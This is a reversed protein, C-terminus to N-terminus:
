KEEKRKKKRKFFIIGAALVAIAIAAAIVIAAINGVGNPDSKLSNSDFRLTYSIMHPESMATTEASIDIDEDWAPIDIVFTSNEEGTLPYYEKDGVKMYDYNPSNWVIQATTRGDAATIKAPSEVAARGSGGELTVDATYSGDDLELNM